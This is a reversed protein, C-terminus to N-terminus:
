YLFDSLPLSRVGALLCINLFHEKRGGERSAHSVLWWCGLPEGLFQPSPNSLPLRGHVLMCLWPSVLIHPWGLGIDGGEWSWAGCCKGSADLPYLITGSLLRHAICQLGTHSWWGGWRGLLQPVPAGGSVIFLWLWFSFYFFALPIGAVGFVPGNPVNKSAWSIAAWCWKWLVIRNWLM